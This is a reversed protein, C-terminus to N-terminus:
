KFEKGQLVVKSPHLRGNGALTLDRDRQRKALLEVKLGTILDFEVFIGGDKGRAPDDVLVGPMLRDSFPSVNGRFRKFTM